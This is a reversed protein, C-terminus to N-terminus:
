EFFYPIPDVFYRNFIHDHDHRRPGAARKKKSSCNGFGSGRTTWVNVESRGLCAGNPLIVNSGPPQLVLM